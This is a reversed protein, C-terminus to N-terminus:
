LMAYCERCVGFAADHDHSGLTLFLTQTPERVFLHFRVVCRMGQKTKILVGFSGESSSAFHEM